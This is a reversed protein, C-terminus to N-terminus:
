FVVLAVDALAGFDNMKGFVQVNRPMGRNDTPREKNELLFKAVENTLKVSSPKSHDGIQKFSGVYRDSKTDYNVSVLYALDMPFEARIQNRIEDSTQLMGGKNMEVWLDIIRM